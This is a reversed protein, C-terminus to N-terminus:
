RPRGGPKVPKPVIAVGLRALCERERRRMARRDAPRADRHGALHLAGHVVYLLLEEDPGWGYRGSEALAREASV